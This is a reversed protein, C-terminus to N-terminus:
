TADNTSLPSPPTKKPKVGKLQKRTNGRASQKILEPDPNLDPARQLLRCPRVSQSTSQSAAAGGASSQSKHFPFHLAGPCSTSDSGYHVAGGGM